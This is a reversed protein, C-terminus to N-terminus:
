TVGSTIYNELEQITHQQKSILTKVADGISIVGIVQGNDLVPLHRIRQATMLEMCAEITKAPTITVVNSSMLEKVHIEQASKQTRIVSRAYDRESFIGVLKDEDIVLIAGINKEALLHLAEFVTAESGISWIDNGKTRLIQGVTTM